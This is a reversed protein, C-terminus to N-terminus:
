CVYLTSLALSSIMQLKGEVFAKMDDPHSFYNPQILPPSFPDNTSLKISGRSKPRQLAIAIWNAEREPEDENIEDERLYKKLIDAKFNFIQEFFEPMGRIVGFSAMIFQM